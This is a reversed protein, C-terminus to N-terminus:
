PSGGDLFAVLARLDEPSLPQPPMKNGPKITQSNSIWGALYGKTNPITGAGLTSRTGVHTLDPGVDGHATTGRVTHCSACSASEFVQRGRQALPDSSAEVPAAQQSVWRDFDAVPQAVVEFGMHAHQLGCYEACRGAFTGDRQAKIWTDNVRGAVLDTKPMLQPVWFSHNVDATTLRLHVVEGTPVHIENATVVGRDPYRVEWWWIHGIVDVTVAAPTGPQQLARMDGLGIGYVVTLVVAPLAVGAVVVATRGGHRVRVDPRRRRWAAWLVGATILVCVAGGVAFLLWTLREVTKAGSGAADLASPSQGGCGALLLCVSGLAALRLATRRTLLNVSPETDVV